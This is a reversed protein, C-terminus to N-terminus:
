SDFEIGLMAYVRNFEKLSRMGSGSGCNWKRRNGKKWDPLFTEQKRIWVRIRKRKWMSNQIIPCFRRIPEKMVDEKNGWRRYACIMKRVPNWLRWIISGCPTMAWSIMSRTSRLEILRAGSIDSISRSQSIRPLISWM